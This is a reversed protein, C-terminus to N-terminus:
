GFSQIIEAETPWGPRIVCLKQLPYHEVVRFVFSARFM